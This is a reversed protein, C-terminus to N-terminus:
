PERGAPTHGLFILLCESFAQPQSVEGAKDKGAKMDKQGTAILNSGKTLDQKGTQQLAAGHKKHKYGAGITKGKKVQASGLRDAKVGANIADTGAKTQGRQMDAQGKKLDQAGTALQQNGANM